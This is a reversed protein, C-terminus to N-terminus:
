IIQAPTAAIRRNRIQYFYFDLDHEKLLKIFAQTMGYGFLKEIKETPWEKGNEQREPYGAAVLVAVMDSYYYYFSNMLYQCFADQLTLSRDYMLYFYNSSFENFIVKVHELSPDQYEPEDFYLQIFNKIEQYFIKRSEKKM